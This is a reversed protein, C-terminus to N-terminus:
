SAACAQQCRQSSFGQIVLAPLSAGACRWGARGAREPARGDRAPDRRILGDRRRCAGGRSSRRLSVPSIPPRDAGRFSGHRAARHRANRPLAPKGDRAGPFLHGPEALHRQHRFAGSEHRAEQAGARSRRRDHSSDARGVADRGHQSRPASGMRSISLRCGRKSRRRRRLWRSITGRRCRDRAWCLSAPPVSRWTDQHDGLHVVHRCRPSPGCCPLRLVHARGCDQVHEADDPAPGALRYFDHDARRNPAVRAGGWCRRGGGADGPRFPTAGTNTQGAASWEDALEAMPSSPTIPFIACGDNVRYAVHAVATNGDLTAIKDMTIEKSRATTLHARPLPEANM